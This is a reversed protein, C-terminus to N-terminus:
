SLGIGEQETKFAVFAPVLGAFSPRLSQGLQSHHEDGPVQAFEDYNKKMSRDLLLSGGSLDAVLASQLGRRKGNLVSALPMLPALQQVLAFDRLPSRAQVGASAHLQEAALYFGTRHQPNILQSAWQQRCADWNRMHLVSRIWHLYVRAKGRLPMTDALRFIMGMESLSSSAMAVQVANWDFLEDGGNGDLFIKGGLERARMAAQLGVQSAPFPLYDTRRFLENAWLEFEPNEFPIIEVERHKGTISSEDCQRGPFSCSVAGVARDLGRATLWLLNSDMGGSLSIFDGQGSLAAGVSARVAEMSATAPDAPLDARCHYRGILSALLSRAQARCASQWQKPDKLVIARGPPVQSIHHYLQAHTPLEFRWHMQRLTILKLTLARQTGAAVQRIDSALALLDSTNDLSGHLPCAGSHDRVVLLDRTKSNYAIAAFQGGITLPDVPSDELVCQLLWEAPPIPRGQRHAWGSSAVVWASHRILSAHGQVGITAYSDSYVEELMGRYPASAAMTEVLGPQPRSSLVAVIASM